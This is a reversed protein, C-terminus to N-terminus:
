PTPPRSGCDAHLLQLAYQPRMQDAQCGNVHGQMVYGHVV